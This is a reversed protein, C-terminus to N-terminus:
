TLVGLRCLIEVTPEGRGDGKGRIERYVGRACVWRVELQSIGQRTRAEVADVDLGNLYEAQFCSFLYAGVPKMPDTKCCIGDVDVLSAM